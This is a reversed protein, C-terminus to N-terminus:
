FAYGKGSTTVGNWVLTALFSTHVSFMQYTLCISMLKKQADTRNNIMFKTYIVNTATGCSRKGHPTQTKHTVEIGVTFSGM